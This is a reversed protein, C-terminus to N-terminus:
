IKFLTMELNFLTQFLCCLMVSFIIFFHQTVYNEMLKKIIKNKMQIEKLALLSQTSNIQLSSTLIFIFISPHIINTISSLLKLRCHFITFPLFMM